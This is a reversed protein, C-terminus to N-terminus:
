QGCCFTNSDICMESFGDNIVFVSRRGSRRIVSGLSDDERESGVTPVIDAVFDYGLSTGGWERTRKIELLDQLMLRRNCRM